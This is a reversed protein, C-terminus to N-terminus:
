LLGLLVVVGPGYKLKEEMVRGWQIAVLLGVLVAGTASNMLTHMIELGRMVGVPLCEGDQRSIKDYIFKQPQCELITPLWFAVSYTIMFVMLGYITFRFIRDRWALYLLSSCIAMRVVFTTIIFMLNLIWNWKLGHITEIPNIDLKHRGLGYRVGLAMVTAAAIAFCSAAVHAWDDLRIGSHRWRVYLRLCLISFMVATTTYVVALITGCSSDGVGMGGLSGELGGGLGGPPGFREM